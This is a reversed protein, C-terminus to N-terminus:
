DIGIIKHTQLSLSWQPNELCYDHAARTNMELNDNHLPQLFFHDFSLAAFCDPQAESEEQPYVLKLEHGSCQAVPARGKPSV